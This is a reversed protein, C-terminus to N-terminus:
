SKKIRWIVRMREPRVERWVMELEKVNPEFLKKLDALDKVDTFGAREFTNLECANRCGVCLVGSGGRRSLARRRANLQRVKGWLYNLTVMSCM